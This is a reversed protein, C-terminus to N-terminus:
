GRFIKVVAGLVVGALTVGLIAMVGGTVLDSGLFSMAETQVGAFTWTEPVVM